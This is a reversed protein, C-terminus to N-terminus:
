SYCCEIESLRYLFLNKNTIM